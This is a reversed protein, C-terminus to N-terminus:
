LPMDPQQRSGSSLGSEQLYIGERREAVTDMAYMVSIDLQFSLEAQSIGVAKIIKVLWEAKEFVAQQESAWDWM